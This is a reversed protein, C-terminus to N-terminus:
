KEEKVSIKKWDSANIVIFSGAEVEGDKKQLVYKKLHVVQCQFNFFCLIGDVLAGDNLELAIRSGIYDSIQKMM